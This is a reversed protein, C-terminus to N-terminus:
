STFSYCNVEFLMENFNFIGVYTHCTGAVLSLAVMAIMIIIECGGSTQYSCTAATICLVTLASYSTSLITVM